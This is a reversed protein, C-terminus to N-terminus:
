AEIATAERAAEAIRRRHAAWRRESLGAFYVSRATEPDGHRDIKAMLARRAAATMEKSDHRAHAIAAGRRGWEARKNREEQNM